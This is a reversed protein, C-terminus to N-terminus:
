ERKREEILVQLAAIEEPTAKSSSLATTILRLASGDFVGQLVHSITEKEIKARTLIAKYVHAKDKANIAVYDKELMGQLNTQLSTYAPKPKKPFLKHIDKVTLPGHEWLLKLLTLERETPGPHSPRAM